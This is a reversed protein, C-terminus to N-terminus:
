PHIKVIFNAIPSSDTFEELDKDISELIIAYSNAYREKLIDILYEPHELCDTFHCQYKEYLKNGVHVLAPTGIELLAREIAM